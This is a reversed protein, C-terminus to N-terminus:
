LEGSGNVLTMAIGKFLGAISAAQHFESQITKVQAIPPYPITNAYGLAKISACDSLQRTGLLASQLAETGQYMLAQQAANETAGIIVTETIADSIPLGIGDYNEFGFGLPNIRKHCVMCNDAKTLNVVQARHSLNSIDDELEEKAENLNLDAPPAMKECLLSDLVFTGRKIASRKAPGALWALLGPQSLLGQRDQKVNGNFVSLQSVLTNSLQYDASFLANFSATQAMANEVFATADALMQQNIQANFNPYKQTDKSLRAINNLRMWETVFDVMAQQGKANALMRDVHQEFVAPQKLAGTSAAELLQSDPPENWILFSLQNALTYNGSEDTPALYFLFAPSQFIFGTVYGLGEAANAGGASYVTNLRQIQDQTLPRRYAKEALELYFRKVCQENLTNACRILNPDASVKDVLEVALVNANASYASVRSASLETGAPFGKEIPDSPLSLGSIGIGFEALLFNVTKFYHQNKLRQMAFTQPIQPYLVDFIYETVKQACAQGCMSPDTLPMTTAIYPEMSGPGTYKVFLPIDGQADNGHCKACQADYIAKGENNNLDEPGASSNAASSQASTSQEELFAVIDTACKLDCDARPNNTPPMDLYIKQILPNRNSANVSYDNANHCVDCALVPDNEFLAQGLTANGATNAAASSSTEPQSSPPITSSQGCETGKYLGINDLQVNVDSTGLLFQVRATTDNSSVMMTHQYSNWSRSLTRLTSNDGSLITWNSDEGGDIHFGIDRGDTAAKANFCLTYDTNTQVSVPHVLEVEWAQVSAVNITFDLYGQAWSLTTDLATPTEFLAIDQTFTGDSLLSNETPNAPTSSSIASAISSHSISSSSAVIIPTDIPADSSIAADSSSSGPQPSGGCAFLTVSGLLGVVKLALGLDSSLLKLYQKPYM